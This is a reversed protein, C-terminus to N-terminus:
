VEALPARSETLLSGLCKDPGIFHPRGGAM